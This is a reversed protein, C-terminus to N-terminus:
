LLVKSVAELSFSIELFAPLVLHSQLMPCWLSDSKWCKNNERLKGRMRANRLYPNSFQYWSGAFYEYKELNQYKKDFKNACEQMRLAYISSIATFKLLMNQINAHKSWIKSSAGMRRQAWASGCWTTPPSAALTWALVVIGSCTLISGSIICWLRSKLGNLM